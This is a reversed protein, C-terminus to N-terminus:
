QQEVAAFDMHVRWVEQQKVLFRAKEVTGAAVLANPGKHQARTTPTLHVPQDAQQQETNAGAALNAVM